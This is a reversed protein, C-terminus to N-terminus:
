RRKLLREYYNKVKIGHKNTYVKKNEIDFFIIRIEYKGKLGFMFSKQYRFNEIYRIVEPEVSPAIFLLSIITGIVDQSPKFLELYKNQIISIIRNVENLDSKKLYKVLSFEFSYFRDFKVAGFITRYNEVTAKAVLDFGYGYFPHKEFIDFDYSLGKKLIELVELEEDKFMKRERKGM